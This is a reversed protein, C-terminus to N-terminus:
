SIHMQSYSSFAQWTRSYAFTCLMFGFTRLSSYDFQFNFLLSYPSTYDLLFSPTIIILLIVSLLAEAWLYCRVSASILLARTSDLIYCHKRKAVGHQEHTHTSMIVSLTSHSKFINQTSSSLYERAGDSRFVNIRKNLQTYVMNTFDTYICFIQVHMCLIFVLIVHIIMLSVLMIVIVMYVSLPIHGWIGSHVLDFPTSAM